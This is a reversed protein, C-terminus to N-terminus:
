GMDQGEGIHIPEERTNIYTFYNLTEQESLLSLHSLSALVSVLDKQTEELRNAWCFCLFPATFSAPCLQTNMRLPPLQQRPCTLFYPVVWLSCDSCFNHLTATYKVAALLRITQASIRQIWFSGRLWQVRIWSTASFWKVHSKECAIWM